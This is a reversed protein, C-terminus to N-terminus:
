VKRIYRKYVLLAAFSIVYWFIFDFVLALFKISYSAYISHPPEFSPLSYTRYLYVLPLGLTPIEEFGVQNIHLVYTIVSSLFFLALFVLILNEDPKLLKKWDM